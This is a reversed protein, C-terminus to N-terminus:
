LWRVDIEFDLQLGAADFCAATLLPKIKKEYHQLDRESGVPSQESIEPRASTVQSHATLPIALWMTVLIVGYPWCRSEAGYRAFLQTTFQNLLMSIAPFLNRSTKRYGFGTMQTAFFFSRPSIGALNLTFMAILCHRNPGCWCLWGKQTFSNSTM